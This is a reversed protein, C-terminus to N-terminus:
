VNNGAKGVETQRAEGTENGLHGDEYTRELICTHEM